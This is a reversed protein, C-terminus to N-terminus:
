RVSPPGRADFLAVRRALVEGEFFLLVLSSMAMPLVIAPSCALADAGAAQDFVRCIPDGENHQFLTASLDQLKLAPAALPQRPALSEPAKMKALQMHSAATHHLVRHAFGLTQALLLALVLLLVPAFARPRETHIAAQTNM